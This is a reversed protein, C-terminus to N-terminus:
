HREVSPVAFLDKRRSHNIVEDVKKLEALLLDVQRRHKELVRTNADKSEIRRSPRVVNRRM